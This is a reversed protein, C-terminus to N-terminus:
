VPNEGRKAELNWSALSYKGRWLSASLHKERETLDAHELRIQLVDEFNRVLTEKIEAM